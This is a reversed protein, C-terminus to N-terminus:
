KAVEEEGPAELGFLRRANTSLIRARAEQSLDSDEVLGLAAAADVHPSGSGFILRHAGLVEVAAPLKSRDLVGSTELMINPAEHAAAIAVRWHLGGMGLLIVRLMPYGKAIELAAEVAEGNPAFLFLPKAYRRYSNILEDAVRKRIPEGPYTSAIAMGVFQRSPMLERMAILSAEVRNIHTVLCGYLNRGQSLIAKLVRNGALPDVRRAHASLLVGGSIGRAEMVKQISTANHAVGPVISGGFYNHADFVSL